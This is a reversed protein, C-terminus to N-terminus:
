WPEVCRCIKVFAVFGVVVGLWGFWYGTDALHISFSTFLLNGFITRGAHAFGIGILWEWSIFLTLFLAAGVGRKLGNRWVPRKEAKTNAKSQQIMERFSDPWQEDDRSEM